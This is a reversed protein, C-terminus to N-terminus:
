VPTDKMELVPLYKKTKNWQFNLILKVLSKLILRKKLLRRNNWTVLEDMNETSLSLSENRNQLWGEM